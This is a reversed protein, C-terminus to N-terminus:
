LMPPPTDQYSFFFVCRAEQLARGAMCECGIHTGPVYTTSDSVPMCSLGHVLSCFCFVCCLFPAVYFSTRDSPEKSGLHMMIRKAMSVNWIFGVACVLAVGSMAFHMFAVSESYLPSSTPPLVLCTQTMNTCLVGVTENTQEAMQLCSGLLPLASNSLYLPLM